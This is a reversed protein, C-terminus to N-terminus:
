IGLQEAYPDDEPKMLEEPYLGLYLYQPVGNAHEEIKTLVNDSDDCFLLVDPLSAGESSIVVYYSDAAVSASTAQNVHFFTYNCWSANFMFRPQKVFSVILDGPNLSVSKNVATYQFENWYVPESLDSM